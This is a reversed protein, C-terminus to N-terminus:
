NKREEVMSLIIVIPLESIPTILAEIRTLPVMLFINVLVVLAIM